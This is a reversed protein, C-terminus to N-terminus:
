NRWYSPKGEAQPPQSRRERAGSPSFIQKEALHQGSAARLAAKSLGPKESVCIWTCSWVEASLTRTVQAMLWFTWYRREWTNGWVPCSTCGENTRYWPRSMAMFQVNMLLMCKTSGKVENKTYLSIVQILESIFFCEKYLSYKWPAWTRVLVVRNSVQVQKKLTTGTNKGPKERNPTQNRTTQAAWLFAPAKVLAPVWRSTQLLGSYQRCNLIDSSLYAFLNM